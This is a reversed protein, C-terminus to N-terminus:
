NTEVADFRANILSASQQGSPCSPLDNWIQLAKRNLTPTGSNLGSV